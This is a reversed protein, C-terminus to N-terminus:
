PLVEGQSLTRSSFGRSTVVKVLADRVNLEKANLDKLLLKAEGDTDIRGLGYRLLNSAVCEAAEPTTTLLAALDRANQFKPTGSDLGSIEGSADVTKGNDTTRWKGTVDYNEFAFGLDDM